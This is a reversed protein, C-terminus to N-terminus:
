EYHRIWIGGPQIVQGPNVVEPHCFPAVCSTADEGNMLLKFAFDGTAVASPGTGSKPIGGVERWSSQSLRYSIRGGSNTIFVNYRSTQSNRKALAPPTKAATTAKNNGLSFSGNPFTVLPEYLRVDSENIALQVETASLAVAAPRATVDYASGLTRWAGWNGASWTTVALRGDSRVVFVDLSNFGRSAIGPGIYVNGDIEKIGGTPHGGRLTLPDYWTGDIYKIRQVDGSDNIAVVDIRNQGRSVASPDSSFCCGIPRWGVFTVPVNNVRRYMKWYIRNDSGRAFLDYNGPSMHAIAPTGVASIGRALYPNPLLDPDSQSVYSLSTFFGWKSNADHTYYQLLRSVDRKSVFLPRAPAYPTRWTMGLFTNGIPDTWRLEGDGTYSPYHMISDYDYNGLLPLLPRARFSVNQFDGTCDGDDDTGRTGDPGDCHAPTPYQRLWRDRDERNQEHWMGLCHGLEHLIVQDSQNTNVGGSRQTLHFETPGNPNMGVKEIGGEFYTCMNNTEVPQNSGVAKKNYRVLVYSTDTCDNGPCHEFSIYERGGLTMASVWTAMKTEVRAKDGDSFRNTYTKGNNTGTDFRYPVRGGPWLEVSFGLAQNVGCVLLAIFVLFAIKTLTKGSEIIMEQARREKGNDLLSASYAQLRLQLDETSILQLPFPLEL